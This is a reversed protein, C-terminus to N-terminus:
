NEELIGLQSAVEGPVQDGSALAGLEVLWVGASFGGAQQSAVRLALRTKGSGGPGTLTVLRSRDLRATVEAIDRERGIFTTTEVPLNTEAHTAEVPQVSVNQLLIAQELRQLETGPDLGIEDILRDLEDRYVRL